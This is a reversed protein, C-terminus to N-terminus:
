EALLLMKKWAATLDLLDVTTSGDCKSLPLKDRKYMTVKRLDDQSDSFKPRDELRRIYDFITKTKELVNLINGCQCILEKLGSLRQQTATLKEKEQKLAENKSSAANKIYNVKREVDGAEAKLQVVDKATFFGVAAGFLGGLIAGGPGALGGPAAAAMAGGLAASLAGGGFLQDKNNGEIDSIIKEKSQLDRHADDLRSSIQSFESALDGIIKNIDKEKKTENEKDVELHRKKENIATEIQSIDDFESEGISVLKKFSEKAKEEDRKEAQIRESLTLTSSLSDHIIALRQKVLLEELILSKTSCHVILMLLFLHKCMM